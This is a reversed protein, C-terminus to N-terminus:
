TLTGHGNTFVQGRSGVFKMMRLENCKTKGARDSMSPTIRAARHNM